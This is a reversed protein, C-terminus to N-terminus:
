KDNIQNLECVTKTSLFLAINTDSLNVSIRCLRFKLLDKLVFEKPVVILIDERM